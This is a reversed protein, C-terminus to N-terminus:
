SPEKGAVLLAFTGLLCREDHVVRLGAAALEDEIGRLARTGSRTLAFTLAALPWRVFAALARQWWRRPRVEDAIILTGGPELVVFAGRLVHRIEDASLESLSLTAVVRDFRGAGLKEIETATIHALQADPASERAVELMADSVDIGLVEAGRELMLAALSGTGCGIELVQDGPSVWREAIQRKLRDIRGLTLIRMGRDYGEPSKELLKMYVMTSM